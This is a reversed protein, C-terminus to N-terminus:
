EQEWTGVEDIEDPAASREKGLVKRARIRPITTRRDKIHCNKPWLKVTSRPTNKLRQM